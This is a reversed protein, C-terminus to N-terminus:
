VFRRSKDLGLKCPGIKNPNLATFLYRKLTTCSDLLQKPDDPMNFEMVITSGFAEQVGFIEKRLFDGLQKM